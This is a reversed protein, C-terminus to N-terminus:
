AMLLKVSAIFLVVSLLYKIAVVKFRHAGFYAGLAGCIITLPLLTNLIQPDIYTNYANSGIYGSISNLFIFLASLAATEKVKTWGLMLLIPSLIIGGGIGILGSVFGICLGLAPVMWWRREVVVKNSIPFINLFRLVPFLLLVGLVKKYIATDLLITGGMYAAPMSFIILPIFLEVPFRCAKRYFIFAVCSVIINLILATPRIQEPMYNFLALLMLYSSAGGHGVSAYLFAAIPMLVMLFLLANDAVM